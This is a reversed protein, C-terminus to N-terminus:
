SPSPSRAAGRGCSRWPAPAASSSTPWCRPRRPRPPAAGRPAPPAAGLPPRPAAARSRRLPAGHGRLRETLPPEWLAFTAGPRPSGDETVARVPAGVLRGAAQAPEAVTASALVFVPAAGYRRCIRRLRRLVHGVHSGFVGRYAHCEDVVVYALRRLTSSWKQHAPLIGRHLMDPNTVIWRSHM